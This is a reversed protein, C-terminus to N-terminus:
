TYVVAGPIRFPALSAVASATETDSPNRLFHPVNSPVTIVDGPCGLIMSGEHEGGIAIEGSTVVFLEENPHYHRRTTAGPNLLVRVCQLASFAGDRVIIVQIAGYPRQLIECADSATSRRITREAAGTV